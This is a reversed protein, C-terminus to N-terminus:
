DMIFSATLCQKAVWCGNTLLFTEVTLSSIDAAKLLALIESSDSFLDNLEFLEFESELLLTAELLLSSYTM